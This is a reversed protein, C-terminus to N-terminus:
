QSSLLAIIWHVHDPINHDKKYRLCLTFLLFFTNVINYCDTFSSLSNPSFVWRVQLEDKGSVATSIHWSWPFAQPRPLLLSLPLLLISIKVRHRKVPPNQSNGTSFHLLKINSCNRVSGPLDHADPLLLLLHQLLRRLMNLLGVLLNHSDLHSFWWNITSFTFTFHTWSAASLSSSVVGPRLALRLAAVAALSAM